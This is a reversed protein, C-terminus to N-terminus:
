RLANIAICLNRWAPHPLSIEARLELRFWPTDASVQVSLKTLDKPSWGYNFRGTVGGENDFNGQMFTQAGSCAHSHAFSSASIMCIHDVSRVQPMCQVLHTLALPLDWKVKRDLQSRTRLRSRQHKHCFRPCIPVLEM